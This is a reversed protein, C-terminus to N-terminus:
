SQMGGEQGPLEVHITLGGDANATAWIRGGHAEVITRSISLGMGLGAPKTSVFRDFILELDPTKVGIGTDRIAIEALGSESRVSEIRIARPGDELAAIAECANVIVNLMVQQLQVVDGLVRPLSEDLSFHVVIQRRELDHRVLTVVDELLENVNVARREGHEKRFLTRLRSIIQAARKADGAIDDLAEGIDPRAGSGRELMRRATQANTLVAALPQNIEHALSAALEGLTTVRLALALEERQRRAVEEARRRRTIDVHSVIAGGEPRQFPEITMEFWRQESPSHCAYELPVQRSGGELVAIIARLAVGADTDGAAAARRCVDLYNAGVAVRKLDGGHDGAFRTWAQNVAIIVGRPDIVAVHGYLSEFVASRLADSERLAQQATRLETVDIASGVHGHFTGDGETRPVGHDLLWAYQGDRRRLRYELTFPRRDALAARCREVVGERDDLQVAATWGDGLEDELRRGTFDLWRRNFYTRRGDPGSMWVMVPTSDAMRRFREESERVESAARRRALANGFVEALLQLRQLLAAPWDRQARLTSVTLAGVMAGGVTLPVVVLSQTGLKALSRRDVIAEDPLEEPRAFHVMQGALLRARIWPFAAPEMPGTVSRTGERAWSHTVQVVEGQGTLTALSVRDVDLEAVIRQLAHEIRRDVEGAPLTTFAASLESLLMEFRLREALARQARRRQSRHVLLGVILASQLLLVIVGTAIYGAYLEWASAPKFRIVSGPPLRREDLGWRELQRWDFMSVKGARTPAPREGGLVRLALEAVRVGEATFDVAHGGVTGIGILPTSLTYAPVPSAAVIRRVSEIAMFNQGTADRHFSALVLVTQEPLAVVRSLVAELSVDTLYTVEVRDQLAALQRRAQALFIRDTSELTGSVVVVRRTEPQLRLATEVTGAWDRELWTGTVDAGLKLDAADEPGPSFFVVAAGSFLDVRNRLAIRLADRGVPIVLDLRRGAYKHRLLARFQPEPAEGVFLSMDLYETYFYVPDPSRAHLTSRISQDIAVIGPLLRPESYLLLVHRQHERDGARAQDGPSSSAPRTAEQARAPLSTDVALALPTAVILTLAASLLARRGNM